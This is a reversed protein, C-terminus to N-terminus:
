MVASTRCFIKAASERPPRISLLEGIAEHQRLSGLVESVQLKILLLTLLDGWRTQWQQAAAGGNSCLSRRQFHWPMLLSAGSHIRELYARSAAVRWQPAVAALQFMHKYTPSRALLRVLLDDTVDIPPRRRRSAPLSGLATAEM